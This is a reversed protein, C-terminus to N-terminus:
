VEQAVRLSNNTVSSSGWLSEAVNWANGYVDQVIRCMVQHKSKAEDCHRSSGWTSVSMKELRTVCSRTSVWHFKCSEYSLTRRLYYPLQWMSPVSLITIAVLPTMHNCRLLTQAHKLTFYVGSVFFWDVIHVPGPSDTGFFRLRNWWGTLDHGCNKPVWM